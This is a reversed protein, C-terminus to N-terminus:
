GRVRELRWTEPKSRNACAPAPIVRIRWKQGGIVFAKSRCNQGALREALSQQPQSEYHGIVDAVSTHRDADSVSGGAAVLM